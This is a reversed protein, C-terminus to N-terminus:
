AVALFYRDFLDVVAEDLCGLRLADQALQADQAVQRVRVDDADAVYEVRDALGGEGVQPHDEVKDVEVQALEDGRRLGDRDRVHLPDRVLDEGRQLIQVRRVDKV